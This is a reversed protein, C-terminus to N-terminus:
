LFVLKQSKCWPELYTFMEWKSVNASTRPPMKNVIVGMTVWDGEIDDNKSAKNQIQSIKLLKRGEMRKEM